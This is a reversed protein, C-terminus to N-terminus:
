KYHCQCSLPHEEMLENGVSWLEGPEDSACWVDLWGSFSLVSGATVDAGVNELFNANPILHPCDSQRSEDRISTQLEDKGLAKMKVTSYRYMQSKFLIEAWRPMYLSGDSLKNSCSLM